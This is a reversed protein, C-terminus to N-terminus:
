YKSLGSFYFFLINNVINASFSIFIFMKSYLEHHFFIICIYKAAVNTHFKKIRSFVVVMLLFFGSLVRM